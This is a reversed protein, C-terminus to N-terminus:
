QGVAGECARDDREARLRDVEAALADARAHAELVERDRAVLERRLREVVGLLDDVQERALDREATMGDLEAGAEAARAVALACREVAERQSVWALRALERASDWEATLRSVARAATDTLETLRANAEALSGLEALARHVTALDTVGGALRGLAELAPGVLDPTARASV